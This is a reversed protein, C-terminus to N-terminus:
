GVFKGLLCLGHQNWNGLMFGLKCGLLWDLKLGLM